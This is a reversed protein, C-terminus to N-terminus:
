MYMQQVNKGNPYTNERAIVWQQFVQFNPKQIKYSCVDTAPIFRNLKEGDM